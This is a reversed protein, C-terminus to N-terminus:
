IIKLTEDILVDSYHKQIEYILKRLEYQHYILKYCHTQTSVLLQVKSTQHAALQIGTIKNWPIYFGFKEVGRESIGRKVAMSFFIATLVLTSCLATIFEANEDPRLFLMAFLMVICLSFFDDKGKVIIRRNRRIVLYAEWILAAIALFSILYYFLVTMM